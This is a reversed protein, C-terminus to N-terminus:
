DIYGAEKKRKRKEKLVEEILVIVDLPKFPKELYMKMGCLEMLSFHYERNFVATMAIIPIDSTEPFRKLKEALRFGSMGDMKLDLLIVDPKLKKAVDLADSSNNVAITEYGSLILTEKLTELFKKDDDVIMIKEGPM